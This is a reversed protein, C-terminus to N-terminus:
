SVSRRSATMPPTTGASILRERAYQVATGALSAANRGRPRSKGARVRKLTSPHLGARESLQGLPIERLVPLVASEWEHPDHYENGVEGWTAILGAQVDKLRNSEKGILTPTGTLEVHRRRLLGATRKACPQANGGESKFEPHFRYETVVDRISNVQATGVNSATDSLTIGFERGSYRDIWKMKLWESPHREFPAVLHFPERPDVGQPTGFRSVQASLMFNYPKIRDAYPENANLGDFLRLTGADAIRVQTVAPVDFWEPDDADRDLVDVDLVHQWVERIWAEQSVPDDRLTPDIPNLLHGLCHQNPKRITLSGDTDRNFLVYRKASVMFIHLQVREGDKFNEDEIKLVSGPVLARDYPNLGAFAAVIEAVDAFSLALIAERGDAMLRNGSPCPVLGGGKTAVIAMSDTDCFAYQGGRERVRHELLALMLRAGSTILAALPPFCFEGPTEIAPLEAEYRSGDIKWVCAISESSDAKRNFEAYIGYSGSNALTKLGNGRRKREAASLSQDAQIRKREEIVLRFLDDRRPDIPVVGLLKTPTLNAQTGCPLLRFAEVVEVTRGTLLKDAVLDPLAYWVPEDNSLHNSGINWGTERPDYRARVPLVAGDAKIRAFVPLKRWTEPHFLDDSETHALLDRTEETADVVEIREATIFAWNGMLANVTPYMSLFDTYVVPVSTRRIRAEARGGYYANMSAALKERPFDPQRVLPPVIGMERLYGKALSAPSFAKTVALSIPHHEFEPLLKVLLEGTAKTDRRNYAIYDPTVIGHREVALKPHEVGHEACAGDLSGGANMLAFRLTRLDLFHGRFTQKRGRIEVLDDADPAYFSAFQMLHQKPGLSRVRIRPRFHNEHWNGDADQYEWLVFSFGGTFDDEAPTCRVALRSLDFPLNFGVVLARSKYAAKWFPGDVFERRSLLKLPRPRRPPDVDTTQEAAYQRVIAFAEHDREPLDDDYFLGEDLCCGVPRDEGRLDLFRYSGLLLRQTADVTTETDIVIAYDPVRATRSLVRATPSVSTVPEVWTRQAVQLRSM